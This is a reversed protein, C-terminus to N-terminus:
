SVQHRKFTRMAFGTFIIWIATYFIAVVGQADIVFSGLPYSLLSSFLNNFMIAPEPLLVAMHLIFGNENLSLYLPVMVLGIGVMVIGLASSWRASLFLMFATLGFAVITTILSMIIVAQAFSLPFPLSFSLLQIPLDGGEAGFFLLPLFIPISLGIAVMALVYLFTAIVKAGVLTNKGHRTSLVIADTKMRYESSFVPTVGVCIAVFIFIM